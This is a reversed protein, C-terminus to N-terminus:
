NGDHDELTDNTKVKVIVPRWGPPCVPSVVIDRGNHIIQMGAARAQQAVALVEANDPITIAAMTREKNADGHFEAAPAPDCLALLLFYAVLALLADRWDKLTPM